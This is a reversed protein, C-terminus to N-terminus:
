TPNLLRMLTTWSSGIMNRLTSFFFPPVLDPTVRHMMLLSTQSWHIQSQHHRSSPWRFLRLSRLASSRSSWVMCMFNNMDSEIYSRNCANSIRNRCQDRDTHNWANSKSTAQMSVCESAQRKFAMFRMGVSAYNSLLGYSLGFVHSHPLGPVFSQLFLLKVLRQQGRSPWMKGLDLAMCCTPPLLNM